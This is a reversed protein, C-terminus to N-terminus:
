PPLLLLQFVIASHCCRYFKEPSGVVPDVTLTYKRGAIGLNKPPVIQSTTVKQLFLVPVFYNKDPLTSLHTLTKRDQTIFCISTDPRCLLKYVIICHNNNIRIPGVESSCSHHSCSGLRIIRNFIHRLFSYTHSYM